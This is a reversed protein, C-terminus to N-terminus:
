QLVKESKMAKFTEEIFGDDYNLSFSLPCRKFIEWKERAYGETVSHNLAKEILRKFKEFFVRSAMYRELAKLEKLSMKM